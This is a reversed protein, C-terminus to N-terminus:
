TRRSRKRRQAERARCKDSCYTAAHAALFAKGCDDSACVGPITKPLPGYVKPPRDGPRNRDFLAHMETRGWGGSGDSGPGGALKMMSIENTRHPGHDTVVGRADRIKM